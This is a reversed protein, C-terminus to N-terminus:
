AMGPGGVSSAGTRNFRSKKEELISEALSGTSIRGATIVPIGVEKKVAAALDVMYGTKKSKIVIDPLFFSEYTGGMVSLYAIGASELSRAFRVSENLKFGTLCGNM